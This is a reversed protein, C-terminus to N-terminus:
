TKVSAPSVLRVAASAFLDIGDSETDSCVSAFCSSAAGENEVDCVGGAVGSRAPVTTM